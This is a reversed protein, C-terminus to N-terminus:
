RGAVVADALEVLSRVRLDPAVGPPPGGRDIWAVSLGYRRAGEADWGNGSVFLTGEGPLLAYVRPDTKYARVDDASHLEDLSLGAAAVASRIMAQTGNSLVARRVGAARLRTLADAADPYAPLTLWTECMKRRAEVSLQPAVEDLAQATVVDFPAYESRANLEWTRDLQRKRWKALLGPAGEGCFPVLRAALGSVDTLTGYLDFAVLGYRM